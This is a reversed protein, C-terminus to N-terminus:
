KKRDVHVARESAKARLHLLLKELMGRVHTRVDREATM